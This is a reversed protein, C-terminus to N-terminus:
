IVWDCCTQTSQIMEDLKYYRVLLESSCNDGLATCIHKAAILLGEAKMFNGTQFVIYGMALMEELASNMKNILEESPDM